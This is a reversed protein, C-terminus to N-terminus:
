RQVEIVAKLNFRDKGKADRAVSSTFQVEKFWGSDELQKQVESSSAATGSISIVGDQYEYSSLWASEPLIRALERLAELNYDPNQFHAMLARNKASLQNLDSEQSAVERVAPSTARIESDIDSGYVNAQYPERALFALGVLLALASLAYTPVLQLQSRRHRRGPPLLNSTFSSKKLPILAAAISGFSRGHEPKANQLPLQTPALGDLNEAESGYAIMRVNECSVIGATALLREILTKTSEGVRAQSIAKVQSGRLLAGEVHDVECALVLAPAGDPWLARVAHVCSLSSLSVGSLPLKLSAFFPIWEDLATRPIIAVTVNLQKDTRGTREEAFDWYVEEVPWPCLTEIQLAVASRLNERVEVPFQIQRIVGQGRPLSLFVNSAPIGNKKVLEALAGSREVSPLAIFGPIQFSGILHLKGFVSRVVAVRLDNGSIEIGVSTRIM